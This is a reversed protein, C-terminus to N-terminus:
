RLRDRLSEPSRREGGELRVGGPCDLCSEVSSLFDEFDTEASAGWYLEARWSAATRAPDRGEFPYARDGDGFVRLLSVDTPRVAKLLRAVVEDASATMRFRVAIIRAAGAEYYRPESM